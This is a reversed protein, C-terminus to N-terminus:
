VHARGIEIDSLKGGELLLGGAIAGIAVIAGTISAVDPKM